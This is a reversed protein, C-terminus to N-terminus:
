HEIKLYCERRLTELVDIFVQIELFLILLM